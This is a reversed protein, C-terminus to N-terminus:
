DWTRDFKYYILMKLFPRPQCVYHLFDFFLHEMEETVSFCWRSEKIGITSVRM